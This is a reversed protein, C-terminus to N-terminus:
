ERTASPKPLPAERELSPDPLPQSTKPPGQTLLQQQTEASASATLLGLVALWAFHRM